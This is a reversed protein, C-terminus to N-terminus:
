LMHLLFAGQYHLCTCLDLTCICLSCMRTCITSLCSKEIAVRRQCGLLQCLCHQAPLSVMCLALWGALTCICLARPKTLLPQAPGPQHPPQSPGPQQLTQSPGPAATQFAEPCSPSNALKGWGVQGLEM